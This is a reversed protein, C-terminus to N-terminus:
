PKDWHFGPGPNPKEVMGAAIAARETQQHERVCFAILVIILVVSALVTAAWTLHTKFDTM